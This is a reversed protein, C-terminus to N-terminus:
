QKVQTGDARFLLDHHQGQRTMEAEYTISGTAVTVIKAAETLRYAAYDRALRVRVPAPLQSPPLATETELLTGAASLLVSKDTSGQRFGAEYQGGEREWRVAQVAPYAKRFATVVAPPVQRAPVVQAPALLPLLLFPTLLVVSKM